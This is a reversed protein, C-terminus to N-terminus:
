VSEILLNYTNGAHRKLGSVNKNLNEFMAERKQKVEQHVLPNRTIACTESFATCWPSV